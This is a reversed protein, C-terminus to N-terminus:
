QEIRAKPFANPFPFVQPEVRRVGIRNEREAPVAGLILYEPRNQQRHAFLESPTPQELLGSEVSRQAAFSGSHGRKRATIGQSRTFIYRAMDWLSSKRSKGKLTISNDLADGIAM